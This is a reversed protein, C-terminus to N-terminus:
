YARLVSFYCTLDYYDYTNKIAIYGPHVTFTVEGNNHAQAGEAVFDVIAWYSPDFGEIYVKKTTNRGVVVSYGGEFSMLWSSDYLRKVGSISKVEIGFSM